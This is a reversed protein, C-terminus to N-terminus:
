AFDHKSVQELGYKATNFLARRELHEPVLACGCIPFDQWQHLVRLAMREERGSYSDDIVSLAYISSAVLHNRM